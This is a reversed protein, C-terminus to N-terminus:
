ANLLFNHNSPVAAQIIGRGEEPFRDNTLKDLSKVEGCVYELRM